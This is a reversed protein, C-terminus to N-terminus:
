GYKSNQVSIEYTLTDFNVYIRGFPCSSLLPREERNHSRASFPPPPKSCYWCVCHGYDFRLSLCEIM